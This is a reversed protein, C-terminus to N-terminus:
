PRFMKKSRELASHTKHTADIRSIFNDVEVKRKELNTILNNLSTMYKKSVTPERKQKLDNYEKLKNELGRKINEMKKREKRIKLTYKDEDECTNDRMCASFMKYKTELPQLLKNVIDRKRKPCKIGIRKCIEQLQRKSLKNLRTQIKKM